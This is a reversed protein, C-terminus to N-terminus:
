RADAAITRCVTGSGVGLSKAIKSIPLGQEWLEIIERKKSRSIPPRGFRVGNRRAKAIGSAQREHRINTEFEAFISLFNFMMAGTPTTTDIGQKFSLIGIRLDHLEGLINAVHRMSRGLRDASWVVVMQFERRRADRLMLKLQARDDISKTGSVTERYTKAVTWGSRVCLAM